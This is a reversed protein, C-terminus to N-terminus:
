NRHTALPYESHELSCGRGLGYYEIGNQAMTGPDYLNRGDFVVPSVMANVILECDPVRFEKWETCIVLADAGKLASAKTGLLELDDRQGYLRHFEDMAKPDYARIKVGHKWLEEILVRSPAERMDDTNPKFSLGWVAITKNRLAGDFYRELKEFLRLKQARNVEQVAVLLTASYEVQDATATLASVDKPFCSGGYGCGPYIFHHGIRPDAGIGQRVHEIDAGLKEALNAIENIFSIKTALMCNAAYKTLEASRNDMVMIKQHNRNVPAYLKSLVEVADTDSSGIIIRDPRSADEVAAGEKLFEPNSVVSYPLEVSREKLVRGLEKSVLDSTGVPVTSKIVVIKAAQMCLAIKNAVAIVHQLDASGDEHEPTGVAIFVVKSHSIGKEADTDFYLRNQEIGQKVLQTLGPEYLRVDGQSLKDVKEQDVDICMVEHGVDALVAAHVLGVYGTGFVSVKM